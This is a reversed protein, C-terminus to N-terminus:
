GDAPLAEVVNPAHYEGHCHRGARNRCGREAQRELLPELSQEVAFFAVQNKLDTQKRAVVPEMGFDDPYIPGHLEDWELPASVRGFISVAYPAIITAGWENRSTDILIRGRRKARRPDRSFLHPERRRAQRVITDAALRMDAFSVCDRVPVLVHLGQGGTTKVWATLGCAALLDRLLLAANRVERFAIAEPDLNFVMYTPQQAAGAMSSWPHFSLCGYDVLAALTATDPVSLYRELRSGSLGALRYTPFRNPWGPSATRAFRFEATSQDPLLVPCVCRGRLYPVIRAAVTLYYTLMEIKTPGHDGFVRRDPDTVVITHSDLEVPRHILIGEKKETL